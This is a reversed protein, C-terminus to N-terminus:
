QNDRNWLHTQFSTTTPYHLHPACALLDQTAETAHKEFFAYDNLIPGFNKSSIASM